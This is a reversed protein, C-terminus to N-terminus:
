PSELDATDPCVVDAVRKIDGHALFGALKWVSSSVEWHHLFAPSWVQKDQLLSKLFINAWKFKWELKIPALPFISPIYWHLDSSGPSM